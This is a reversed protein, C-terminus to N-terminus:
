ATEGAKRGSRFASSGELRSLLIKRTQKYEDGIFGLRLLFCRFAYKPNVPIDKEKNNVRKLELSMRCLASIFETYARIEEPSIDASFWPFSVRGDEETFTLNDIGLAKKILKAKSTLIQKLNDTNVKDAPMQITIGDIATEETDCEFGEEYLHQTLREMTDENDNEATLNGEFDLTYCGIRYAKSPMGCYECSEGLWDSIAKALEKRKAGPVNYHITMIYIRRIKKGEPTIM